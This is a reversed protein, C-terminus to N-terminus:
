FLGAEFGDAFILDEPDEPCICVGAVPMASAQPQIVVLKSNELQTLLRPIDQEIGASGGASGPIGSLRLNGLSLCSNSDPLFVLVGDRGPRVGLCRLTLQSSFVPPLNLTHIRFPLQQSNLDSYKFVLATTDFFRSTLTEVAVSVTSSFLFVLGAGATRWTIGSKM